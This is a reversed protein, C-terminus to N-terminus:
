GKLISIILVSYLIIGISLTALWAIMTLLMFKKRKFCGKLGKLRWAITFWLGFSFALVGLPVHILSIISIAAFVNQILYQPIIALVFSPVMIAFIVILHLVLATSMIKGHNKFDLRRNLWYGYILFGLVVIQAVLSITPILIFPNSLVSM